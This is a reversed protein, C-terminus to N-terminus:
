RTDVDNQNPFVLETVHLPCFLGSSCNESACNSSSLTIRRICMSIFFLESDYTRISACLKIASRKKIIQKFFRWAFRCQEACSKLIFSFKYRDMESLSRRSPPNTRPCVDMQRASAFTFTMAAERPLRSFLTVGDTIRRDYERKNYGRAHPDVISDRVKHTGFVLKRRDIILISISACSKMRDIRNIWSATDSIRAM